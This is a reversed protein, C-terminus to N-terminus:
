QRVVTTAHIPIGPPAPEEAPTGPSKDVIQALPLLATNLTAADVIMFSLASAANPLSPIVCADGNCSSAGRSQHNMDRSSSMDMAHAAHSPEEAYTIAMFCVNGFFISCLTAVLTLWRLPMRISASSM